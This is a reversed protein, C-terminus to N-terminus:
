ARGHLWSKDERDLYLCPFVDLSTIEREGGFEKIEYVHAQRTIKEGTSALSWVEVLWGSPGNEVKTVVHAM